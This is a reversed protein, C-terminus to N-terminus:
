RPTLASCRRARLQISFAGLVGVLPAIRQFGVCERDDALDGDGVNFCAVHHANEFRDPQGLRFRCAANAPADFANQVPCRNAAETLAVVWGAPTAVNFVKEGCPGVNLLCLM